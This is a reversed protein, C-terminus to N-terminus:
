HQDTLIHPSEEKEAVELDMSDSNQQDQVGATSKEVGPPNSTSPLHELIHSIHIFDWAV